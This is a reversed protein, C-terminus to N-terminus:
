PDSEIPPSGDAQHAHGAPPLAASALAGGLLTVIAMVFLEKKLSSALSAGDAGPALLGPLARFRHHAGFAVLVLTGVIKAILLTGYATGLASIPDPLLVWSQALGSATVLVVAVLAARSVDSAVRVLRVVDSRRHALLWALGGIWIAAALLHLGKAPVSISPTFAAAHGLFASLVVAVTAFALALGPRRALWLAWAALLASSLRWLELQGIGSRLATVIGSLEFAGDQSAAVSWLLVHAGLLLPAGLAAFRAVRMAEPIAAAEGGEVRVVFFLMGAVALLAALAAGRLLATLIAIPPATTATAANAAESSVEAPPTASHADGVWFVYSGAVPHGDASVVRWSLRFAGDVLPTVAAVIANVDRPDGEVAPVQVTGNSSRLTIRALEAEIPESFLLRVRVVGTAVHADAAPDSAILETHRTTGEAAAVLLLAALLM